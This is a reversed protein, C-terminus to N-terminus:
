LRKGSAYLDFSISCGLETITKVITKDLHIEGLMGNGIEYDIVVVIKTDACQSLRMIGEKDEMLLEVLETIKEEIQHPSEERQICLSSFEYTHELGLKSKEGKNWGSSAEFSLNKQLETFSLETSTARFYVYSYPILDMGTVEKTEKNVYVALHFQEDQVAFYVAVTKGGEDSISIPRITNEVKELAYREFIQELHAFTPAEIEALASLIIQDKSM